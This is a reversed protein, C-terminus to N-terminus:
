NRLIIELILMTDGWTMEGHPNATNTTFGLFGLAEANLLAQRLHPSATAIDPFSSTQQTPAGTIRSGTRVEFLRVLAAIADERAVTYHGPVLMRANALSSMEQETLNDLMNIPAQSVGRAVAHIIRNLQWVDVAFDPAFWDMDTFNIQTNVFYMADRTQPNANYLQPIATGIAAFTTPRTTSTHVTSAFENFSSGNRRWNVDGSDMVYAGIHYDM